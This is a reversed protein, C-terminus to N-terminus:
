PTYFATVRRARPTFPNQFYVSNLDLVSFVSAESFQQFAHEVNPQLNSGFCFKLNVKRCDFVM